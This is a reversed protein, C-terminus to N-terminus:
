AGRRQRAFVVPPRGGLIQGRGTFASGLEAFRRASPRHGSGRARERAIRVVARGHSGPFPGCLCEVAARNSTTVTM